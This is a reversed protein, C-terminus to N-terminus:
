EGGLDATPWLTISKCIALGLGAGGHRRAQLGGCQYFHEFIRDLKDHPIGPGDDEVIVRCTTREREVGLRVKAAGNPSSSRTRWLNVALQELLDPDAQVPIEASCRLSHHHRGGSAIPRIVDVADHLLAALDVRRM